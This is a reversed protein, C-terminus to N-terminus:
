KIKIASPSFGTFKKFATSFSFPDSFGTHYAIESVNMSHNALLYAAESLRYQCLYDYPSYGTTQKFIRAFHFTSMHVHSAIESLAIKHSFNSTIFEKAEEVTQVRRIKTHPLNKNELTEYREFVNIILETILWDIKLQDRKPAHLLRFLRNHIQDILPTSHLLISAKDANPLFSNLVRPYTETIEKFFTPKFALITCQDPITHLHAVRYEYDPKNLLIYGNHTNLNANFARFQFSGTRVYCISLHDQYELGSVNCGSCQCIFNTIRCFDNEFLIDISAEM